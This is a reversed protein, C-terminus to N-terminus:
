SRGACGSGWVCVCVCVCEWCFLSVVGCRQCVVRPLRFMHEKHKKTLPGYRRAPHKPRVRHFGSRTPSLAAPGMPLVQAKKKRCVVM